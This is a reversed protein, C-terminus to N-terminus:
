LQHLSKLTAQIREHDVQELAQKIVQTQEQQLGELEAVFSQYITEIRKIKAEEARTM